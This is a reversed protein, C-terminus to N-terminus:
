RGTQLYLGYRGIVRFGLRDYIPFGMPSAQLVAVEYGRSRAEILPLQTMYRGIGRHRAETITAIAYVGAVGAELVLAASAVPRGELYGIYRPQARYAADALSAEVRSLADVAPDSLGTASAAVRAWLAQTEGVVAEVSFGAIALLRDDLGRLDLAMAPVEGAPSLGRRELSARVDETSASGIWWFAPAGRADITAQLAEATSEIDRADSGARPVGNFLPHPVGTYFSVTDGWEHRSCGEGRGYAAWFAVMNADMAAHVLPDELHQIMAHPM